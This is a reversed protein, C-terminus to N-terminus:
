TLRETCTKLVLGPVCDLGAAKNRNVEKFMARVQHHQLDLNSERAPPSVLPSTVERQIDFCAFFQNLVDPLYFDESPLLTNGRYDTLAKIGDCVSRPNNDNSWEEIHQKYKLKADM